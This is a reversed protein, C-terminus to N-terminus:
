AEARAQEKSKAAKRKEALEAIHENLSDITDRVVKEAASHPMGDDIATLVMSVYISRAAKMGIILALQRNDINTAIQMIRKAAEEAAFKHIDEIQDKLGCEDTM